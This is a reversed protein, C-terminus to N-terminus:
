KIIDVYNEDLLQLFIQSINMRETKGTKCKADEIEYEARKYDWGDIFKNEKIINHTSCCAKCAHTNTISQLM